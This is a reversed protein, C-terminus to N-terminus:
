YKDLIHVCRDNDDSGSDTDCDIVDNIFKRSIGAQGKMLEDDQATVGTALRRCLEDIPLRAPGCWKKLIANMSEAANNTNILHQLNVEEMKEETNERIVPVIVRKFYALFAGMTQAIDKSEAMLKTCLSACGVPYEVTNLKMITRMGDIIRRIMMESIGLEKAKRKVNDVLHVFCRFQKCYPFAHRISKVIADEGDSVFTLHSDVLDPRTKIMQDWLSKFDTWRQRTTLLIPGLVIPHGTFATARTTTVLVNIQALNFTTDVYNASQADAFLEMQRDTFLCVTFSDETQNISRIYRNHSQSTMLLKLSEIWDPRNKQHTGKADRIQKNARPISGFADTQSLPREVSM